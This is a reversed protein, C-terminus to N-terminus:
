VRTAALKKEILDWRNLYRRISWHDRCRRPPLAVTRIKNAPDHVAGDIGAAKLWLEYSQKVHRAMRRSPIIYYKPQEDSQKEPLGVLVWFFSRGNYIEAKKGVSCTKDDPRFTKVEIHVSRSGQLNSCLIDTNPCNGATIAAVHGRRSLEGAVFYQSASGRLIKSGEDTKYGTSKEEM